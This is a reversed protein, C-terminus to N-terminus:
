KIKNSNQVFNLVEIGVQRIDELAIKSSEVSLNM